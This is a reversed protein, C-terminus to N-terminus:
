GVIQHRYDIPNPFLSSAYRSSEPAAATRAPAGARLRARAPAEAAAATDGTALCAAALNNWTRARSTDLELARRFSELAQRPRGADLHAVGLMNRARASEAVAIARQWLTFSDSCHRLQQHSVLAMAYWRGGGGRAYRIWAGITLWGFLTSLLDKREAVWAVSEVHLPHLGFWAAV